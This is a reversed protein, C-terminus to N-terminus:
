SCPRLGFCLFGLLRRKVDGVELRGYEFPCFSLDRDRLKWGEEKRRRKGRLCALSLCFDQLLREFDVMFDEGDSCFGVKALRALPSWYLDIGDITWQAM